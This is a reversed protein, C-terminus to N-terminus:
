FDILTAESCKIRQVEQDFERMTSSFQEATYREGCGMISDDGLERWGLSPWVAKGSSEAHPVDFLASYSNSNFAEDCAFRGLGGLFGVMEDRAFGHRSSYRGPSSAEGGSSQNQWTSLYYGGGRGSDTSFGAAAAYGQVVQFLNNKHKIIAFQHDKVNRADKEEAEQSSAEGALKAADFPQEHLVWALNVFLVRPLEDDCDVGLLLTSMGALNGSARTRLYKGVTLNFQPSWDWMKRLGYAVINLNESLQSLDTGDTHLLVHNKMIQERSFFLSAFCQNTHGCSMHQLYPAAPRPSYIDLSTEFLSSDGSKTKLYAGIRSFVGVSERISQRELSPGKIKGGFIRCFAALSMTTLSCASCPPLATLQNRASSHNDLASPFTVRGSSRLTGFLYFM